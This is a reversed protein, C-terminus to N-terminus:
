VHACRSACDVFAKPTVDVLRGAAPQPRARLVGVAVPSDSGVTAADGEDMADSVCFREARDITGDADTVTAIDTVAHIWGVEEGSALLVVHAVSELLASAGTARSIGIRAKGLVLDPLNTLRVSGSLRYRSQRSRMADGEVRDPLDHMSPCPSVDGLNLHYSLVADYGSM